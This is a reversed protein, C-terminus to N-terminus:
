VMNMEPRPEKLSVVARTVTPCSVLLTSKCNVGRVAVGGGGVPEIEPFTVSEDLPLAIAPASTVAFPSAPKPVAVM